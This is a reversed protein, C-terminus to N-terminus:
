GHLLFNDRLSGSRDMGTDGYARVGGSYCLPDEARVGFCCCSGAMSKQTHVQFLFIYMLLFIVASVIAIPLSLAYFHVLILVTAAMVMVIMPLFTCIVALGITCFVSSAMKMFGINYNILGFLILGLIFQIGKQMYISYSAYLRQLKERWVLLTSM